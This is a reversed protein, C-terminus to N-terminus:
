HAEIEKYFKWQPQYNTTLPLKELINRVMEVPMNNEKLIASHFDIDTMKGSDVLEHHLARFQLAGVMYAIQYLPDYGGEFSRRVEGEANAREHGVKDILFDVCQEPTWNGLHFNLSFIIRACRHMRWFLAGVKQEPQQDFGKDWLLMEWYFAWGETWFATQFPWRYSRYRENMYEQLYHGPLLEHFVTARSFYPNNGRMSMLKDEYSMTNTPYSISIVDGGTFFPNILQRQPSMMESTWTEKALSPITILKNKEVFNIAELALQRILAPQEGPPVYDNKVKELAKKWDDGFGMQASAKKMEKLCWAYENNAIDILEAPTYPIMQNHLLKLINQEGIPNGHIGSGDHFGYQSSMVNKLTDVYVNMLSDVAKYTVGNWWTFEPDYGNYFNFYNKLIEQLKRVAPILQGVPPFKSLDDKSLQATAKIIMLRLHDLSGASEQANVKCGYHRIVGFNFITDSFPILKGISNWLSRNQSLDSQSQSINYNLLVYDAKGEESMEPFSVQGLKEKWQNFYQQLKKALSDPMDDYTRNLDQLGASYEIIYAAMESFSVSATPQTKSHPQAFVNVYNGFFAIVLVALIKFVSKLKKIQM